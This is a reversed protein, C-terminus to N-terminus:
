ESSQLDFRFDNEGDLTVEATLTTAENYIRPVTEKTMGQVGGYEDLLSRRTSVRVHHTGPVCGYDRVYILDFRGQEDTVASSGRQNSVPSFTVSANALPEGDM